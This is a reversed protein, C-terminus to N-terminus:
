KSILSCHQCGNILRPIILIGFLNDYIEDNPNEIGTQIVNRHAFGLGIHPEIFFHKGLLLKYHRNAM